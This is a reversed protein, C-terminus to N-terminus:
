NNNEEQDSASISASSPAQATVPSASFSASSTNTGIGEQSDLLPVMTLSSRLLFFRSSVIPRTFISVIPRTFINAIQDKSSIFAVQLSKAAIRDRVFHFDVDIHKTRSHMIPNVLLYTAGLNDCWLTPPKSLFIHLERLLSQFWLIEVTTNALDKYEAEISSRAITNQKKSGWSVVNSGLFICFGGISRCDDLCSASDADSFAHLSFTPCPHILLGLQAINKLYKLIRKVAQLHPVTPNHM